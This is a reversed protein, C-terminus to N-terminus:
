FIKPCTKKFPTYDFNDSHKPAARYNKGQWHNKVDANEIRVFMEPVSIKFEISYQMSRTYVMMFNLIKNQFLNISLCPCFNDM